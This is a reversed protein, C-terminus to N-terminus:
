GGGRQVRADGRRMAARRALEDHKVLLEDYTAQARPRGAQARRAVARADAGRRARGGRAKWGNYHSVLNKGQHKNARLLLFLGALTALLGLATTFTSVFLVREKKSARAKGSHKLFHMPLGSDDDRADEGGASGLGGGYSGGRAPASARRQLGGAPAAPAGAGFTSSAALGGVDFSASGAGSAQGYM